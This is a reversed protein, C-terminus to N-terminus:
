FGLDMGIHSKWDGRSKVTASGADNVRVVDARINFYKGVGYRVGFGASAVSLHAPTAGLGVKLNYGRGVDYFILFRLNGLMGNKGALEPTYIEANIVTGGDAAVAREDFGRVSTSGALGFQESALLPDRAFQVNAAIRVQWDNVYTKFFTAGGHLIMFDDHTNRNGPTLYSYRDMQGDVNTYRTGIPFNRAFGINFEILETDTKQQGLYTMGLPMVTYPVCTSISPTPPAFSMEGGNVSCRSNISKYDFGYVLKSTYNGKRALFHNWRAGFVDGKGIIGLLGGLTPSAGPTSVSSHGYIIDVSDGIDYLPVRYGFSWLNVHVGGPSGPSTTYAITAVQDRNFLNAYELAVGTRWKGTASTGTNDVTLLTHLPVNDTVTINADIQDDQAGRGLAVKVQKAPNGNALQIAASLERLNPSHAPSLTRLSSRINEEDFHNNGTVTIMGVTSESVQILVIGGLLEQEPVYVQVASYGAKRYAFELAEVTKQIDGYVKGAGVQPGVARLIDAETLLSNGDIQFRIIDFHEDAAISIHCFLILLVALASRLLINKM